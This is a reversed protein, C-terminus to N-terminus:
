TSVSFSLLVIFPRFYFSRRVIIPNTSNEQGKEESFLDLLAPLLERRM